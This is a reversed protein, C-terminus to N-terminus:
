PSLLKTIAFLCFGYLPGLFLVAMQKGLFSLEAPSFGNAILVLGVFFAVWGTLLAGRGFRILRHGEEAVLAFCAAGASVALLSVADIFILPQGTSAIIAGWVVCFLGAAFYTM